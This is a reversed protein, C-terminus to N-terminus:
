ETRKYIAFGYPLETIRSYQGVELSELVVRAGAYVNELNLYGTDGPNIASVKEDGFRLLAAEWAMGGALERQATEITHLAAERSVGPFLGDARPPRVWLISFRRLHLEAGDAKFFRARADAGVADYGYVIRQYGDDSDIPKGDADFYQVEVQLGRADYKYRTTAVHNWSLAPQGEYGRCTARVAERFADFEYDFSACGRYRWPRGDSSLNKRAVELHEPSWEARTVEPGDKTQGARGDALFFRRETIHQQEDRLLELRAYGAKSTVPRGQEDFYRYERPLGRADPSTRWMAYGDAFRAPRGAEDLCDSGLLTGLEDRHYVLSPCRATAVSVLKGDLGLATQRMVNGYRDFEKVFVHVGESTTAAGTTSWVSRRLENGAADRESKWCQVGTHDTMPKGQLDFYCTSRELKLQDREIRVLQAGQLTTPTGDSALPRQEVVMGDADFAFRMQTYRRERDFDPRGWADVLSMLSARETYLTHDCVTGDRRYGTSEAVWRDEFRYRYEVCGDDDADLFGRGNLRQKRVAMGDKLELRFSVSRHRVEETTLPRICVHGHASLRTEACWISEPTPAPTAVRAAVQATGIPAAACSPLALSLLLVTRKV